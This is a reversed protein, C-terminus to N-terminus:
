RTRRARQIIHEDRDALLPEAVPLAPAPTRDKRAREEYSLGLRDDLTRRWTRAAIRKLREIRAPDMFEGGVNCTASSPSSRTWRACSPDMRERLADPDGGKAFAQWYGIEADRKLVEFRMRMEHIRDYITELKTAKDVVYEPTTM